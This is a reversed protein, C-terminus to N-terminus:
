AQLTVNRYQTLLPGLEGLGGAVVQFVTQETERPLQQELHALRLGEQRWITGADPLAAGTITRLLTTKGTGNRGVLCIREGSEIQCEVHDLLPLYGYPLSLDELRVLPM